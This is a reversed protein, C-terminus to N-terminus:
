IELVWEVTTGIFDLHLDSMIQFKQVALYQYGLQV